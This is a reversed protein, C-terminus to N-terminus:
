YVGKNEREYKKEREVKKIWRVLILNIIVQCAIFFLLLQEIHSM